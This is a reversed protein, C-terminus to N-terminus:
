AASRRVRPILRAPAPRPPSVRVGGRLAGALCLAAILFTLAKFGLAMEAAFGFYAAAVAAGAMLVFCMVVVRM